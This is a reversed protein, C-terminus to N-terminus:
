SAPYDRVFVPTDPTSRDAQFAYGGSDFDRLAEPDNLRHQVIYRAMAGRARKAFFHKFASQQHRLCQQLPVSSVEALFATDPQKKLQTLFASADNYGIKEQRQYFADTRYRLVANWVFRVCGFTRALLAAQEPTPYFRYQYTREAKM